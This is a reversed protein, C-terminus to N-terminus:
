TRRQQLILAALDQRKGTRRLRNALKQKAQERGAQQNAQQGPKLVKPVAAKVKKQAIPVGTAQRELVWLRRMAAITRPDTIAAQEDPSIGFKDSVYRTIEQIEKQSRDADQWEPILELLQDRKKPLEDAKQRDALAKAQEQHEVWSNALRQKRSEILDRAKRFRMEADAYSGDQRAQLAAWDVSQYHREIEAEDAETDQFQTGLLVKAKEHTEEIEKVRADIQKRQEAIEQARQTNASNWRYGNLVDELNAQERGEKGPVEVELRKVLTDVDLEAADAFDQLTFREPAEYASETADPLDGEATSEAALPESESEPEVVPDSEQRVPEPRPEPQKPPPIPEAEQRGATLNAAIADALSTQKAINESRGPVTPRVPANM